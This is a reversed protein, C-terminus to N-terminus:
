GTSAVALPGLRRLQAIARAMTARQGDPNDCQAAWTELHDPDLYGDVIAGEEVLQEFVVEHVDFRFMGALSPDEPVFTIM